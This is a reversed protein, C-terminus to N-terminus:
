NKRYKNFVYRGLSDLDQFISYENIGCSELTERISKVKKRPILIKNLRVSEDLNTEIREYYGQGGYPHISFWGSQSSVRQIIDAPKFLKLENLKFPNKSLDTLLFNSNRQLSLVWVVAFEESDKLEVNTAFFLATLANETWDLLRTPIGYHQAITLHELKLTPNYKIHALSKSSFEDLMRQEDKERSKQFLHRAIKPILAKDVTQGRFLIIRNRDDIRTELEKVFESLSTIETTHYEKMELNLRIKIGLCDVLVVDVGM